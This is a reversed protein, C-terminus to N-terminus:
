RCFRHNFIGMRQFRRACAPADEQPPPAPAECDLGLMACRYEPAPEPASTADAVKYVDGPLMPALGADNGLDIAGDALGTLLGGPLAGRSTDCRADACYHLVTDTGRLGIVAVPTRIDPHAATVEPKLLGSILRLGGRGLEIIRSGVNTDDDRFHLTDLKVDTGDQLFLQSGDLLRVKARGTGLLLRDGQHVSQGAAIRRQIGDNVAQLQGELQEVAGIVPTAPPPTELELVYEGPDEPLPLALTTGPILRRADGGAFAHPNARVVDIVPPREDSGYVLRFVDQLTQGPQVEHLMIASPTSASGQAVLAPSLMCAALLMGALRRTSTRTRRIHSM